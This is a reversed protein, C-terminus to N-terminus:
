GIASCGSVFRGREEAARGLMEEVRGGEARTREICGCLRWRHLTKQDVRSM